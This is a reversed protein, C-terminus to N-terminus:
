FVLFTVLPESSNFCCSVSCPTSLFSSFGSTFVAAAIAIKVVPKQFFLVLDRRFVLLRSASVDEDALLEVTGYVTDGCSLTIEGLVQGKTVPAEGSEETFTVTPTIDKEPDIDNSILCEIEEAPHVKVSNQEQSLAVPVEDILEDTGLIM